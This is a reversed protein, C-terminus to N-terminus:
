RQATFFRTMQARMNSLREEFESDLALQQGPGAIQGMARAHLTVATVLSTHWLANTLEAPKNETRTMALQDSWLAAYLADFVPLSREIMDKDDRSTLMLGECVALIGHALRGPSHTGDPAEKTLLLKAVAIIAAEFTDLVPDTLQYKQKIASFTPREPGNLSLEAGPIGFAIADGAASTDSGPPLFIFEAERDIFRLILWPATLRDFHITSLTAWKM